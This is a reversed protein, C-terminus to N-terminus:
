SGPPQLYDRFLYRVEDVSDAIVAPLAKAYLDLLIIANVAADGEQSAARLRRATAANVIQLNRYISTLGELRADLRDSDGKQFYRALLYMTVARYITEEESAFPLHFRAMPKLYVTYPCASTASILGLLASTARQATTTVRVEREDTLVVVEVKDHSLVDEFVDVAQSIRAALPCLPTKAVDLPCHVCQEFGLATWAPLNAPLPDVSELSVPDLTLTFRKEQGNDFHFQYAVQM